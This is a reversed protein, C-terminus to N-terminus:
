NSNFNNSFEMEYMELFPQLGLANFFRIIGEQREVCTITLESTKVNKSLYSLLATGYGRRRYRSDVAIQKVRGTEEVYIAFAVIKGDRIGVIKHQDLGRSIAPLGNQRSPRINGITYFTKEDFPLEEILNTDKQAAVIGKYCDMQRRITFGKNKYLKVANHNDDFVELLHKYYQQRGALSKVFEYLEGGLRENRKAPLIGTGANYILNEGEITDAGSLIFGILEGNEFAGASLEPKISELLLKNAFQNETFDFKVKYDIFCANFASTLTSVTCGELTKIEM